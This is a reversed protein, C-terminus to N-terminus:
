ARATELWAEAQALSTFLKSEQGTLEGIMALWHMVVTRKIPDACLHATAPIRDPLRLAPLAAVGDVLARLESGDMDGYVGDDYRMLRVYEPRWRPDRAVQGLLDLIGKTTVPGRYTVVLRAKNADISYEHAPPSM